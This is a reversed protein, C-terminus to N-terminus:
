LLAGQSAGSLNAYSLDARSLIAYTLSPAGGRKRSEQVIENVAEATTTATESTFLVSGDRHYITVTM